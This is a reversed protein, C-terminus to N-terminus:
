LLLEPSITVGITPSNNCSLRLDGSVTAKVTGRAVGSGVLCESEGLGIGGSEPLIGPTKPTSRNVPKARFLGLIERRPGIRESGISKASKTRRDYAITKIRSFIRPGGM